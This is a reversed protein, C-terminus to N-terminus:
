DALAGGGRGDDVPLRPSPDAAVATPSQLRKGLAGVGPKYRRLVRAGSWVIRGRHRPHGLRLSLRSCRPLCGCINQGRPSPCSRMRTTHSNRLLPARISPPFFAGRWRSVGKTQCIRCHSIQRGRARRSTSHRQQPYAEARTRTPNTSISHRDASARYSSGRGPVTFRAASSSSADYLGSSM